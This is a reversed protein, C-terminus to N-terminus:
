RFIYKLQEGDGVVVVVCGEKRIGYNSLIIFYLVVLIVNKYVCYYVIRLEGGIIIIIDRALLKQETLREEEM